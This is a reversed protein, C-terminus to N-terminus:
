HFSVTKCRQRITFLSKKKIKCLLFKTDRLNIKNNKNIEIVLKNFKIQSTTCLKKYLVKIANAKM